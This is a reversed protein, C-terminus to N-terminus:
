PVRSLSIKSSLLIKSFPSGATPPPPSSRVTEIAGAPKQPYNFINKKLFFSRFNSQEESSYTPKEKFTLVKFRCRNSVGPTSVSTNLGSSHSLQFCYRTYPVPATEVARNKKGPKRMNKRRALGRHQKGGQWTNM